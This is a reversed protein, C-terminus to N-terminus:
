CTKPPAAVRPAQNIRPHISPHTLWDIQDTQLTHTEAPQSAPETHWYTRNLLAQQSTSSGRSSGQRWNTSQFAPPTILGSCTRGLTSAQSLSAGILNMDLALTASPLGSRLAVISQLEQRKSAQQKKTVRGGLANYLVKKKM